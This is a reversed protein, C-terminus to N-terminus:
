RSGVTDIVERLKQRAHYEAKRTSDCKNAIAAKDLPRWERAAHAIKEDPTAKHNQQEQM